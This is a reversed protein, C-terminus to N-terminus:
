HRDWQKVEMRISLVAAKEVGARRTSIERHKLKWKGEHSAALCRKVCKGDLQIEQTFHGSLDRPWNAIPKDAM